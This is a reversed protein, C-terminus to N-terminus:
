HTAWAYFEPLSYAVRSRFDRRFDTEDTLDHACQLRRWDEKPGPIGAMDLLDGFKM